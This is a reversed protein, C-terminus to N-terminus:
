YTEVRAPELLGRLEALPQPSSLIVREVGAEAFAALQARCASEDGAIVLEAVLELPVRACAAPVDGVRLVWRYPELGQRLLEETRLAARIPALIEPSWRTGELMAEGRGPISLERAVFPRMRELYAEPDDTLAISTLRSVVVESPARGAAQAAARLTAVARKVLAPGAFSSFVVGDALRGALELGRPGQTGLLIPLRRQLPALELEVQRLKVFRGDITTPQGTWLARLALITEELAVLPARQQIGAQALMAPLSRGLGLMLRGGAFRDLTAAASALLAPNRVYPVTVSIGLRIGHTRAAVYGLTAFAEWSDYDEIVWVSELGAAEAEAARAVMASPTATRGFPLLLGFRM